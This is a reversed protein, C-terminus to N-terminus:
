LASMLRDYLRDLEATAPEDLQFAVPGRVLTNRFIGRRQLLYKEIVLYGDLGIGIAQIAGILPSLAYVKEDDSAGLARWLAVIADLLDTGPMTGTIGRRYNEALMAGGSGEYICVKGESIANLASIVPGVPATPAM